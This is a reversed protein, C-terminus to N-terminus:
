CFGIFITGQAELDIEKVHMHEKLEPFQFDFDFERVVDFGLSQTSDKNM